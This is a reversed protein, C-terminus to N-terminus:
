ILAGMCFIVSLYSLNLCNRALWTKAPSDTANEGLAETASLGDVDEYRWGFEVKNDTDGYM